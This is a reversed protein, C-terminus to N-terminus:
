RRRAMVRSVASVPHPQAVVFVSDLYAWLRELVVPRCLFAVYGDPRVLVLGDDVVGYEAYTSENADYITRTRGGDDSGPLRPLILYADILNNYERKLLAEIEQWVKLSRSPEQRHAFVFLVHKTGRCLTHLRMSTNGLRINVDPAREGAHLRGPQWNQESLREYFRVPQHDRVIPSRRYAVNEQSITAALLKRVQKNNSLLPAARDRVRSPLSDHALAIRSFLDTGRLLQRGIHEREAEYSDLLQPYAKQESVLALKWALNFADQIGANMGQAAIPSHVHCADGALFVVGRRYHRVKRQNIQFRSSWLMDRARAEKLGCKELARQVEDLTVDGEPAMRPRYAIIIRHLSDPLPFCGILDGDQLFVMVQQPPMYGDLFVDALAFSQEFTSGEFALGLLHRVTSHPGDCGILWRTYIHEKEGGDHQLAAEVGGNVQRLGTLTVLREVEVGQRELHENLIRETEPQPLILLFPYRGPIYRADVQAICRHHSYINVRKIKIGRALFSDVLGMKEFLELTRAQIGLAKSEHSGHPLRDIIRCRLGHRALESAMVMGTPGAGVVLVDTDYEM